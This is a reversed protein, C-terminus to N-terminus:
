PQFGSTAVVVESRSSPPPHTTSLPMKSHSSKRTTKRMNVPTNRANATRDTGWEGASDGGSMRWTVKEFDLAGSWNADALM